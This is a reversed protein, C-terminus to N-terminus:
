QRRALLTGGRRGRAWAVREVNARCEGKGAEERQLEGVGERISRARTEAGCVRTCSTDGQRRALQPEIPKIKGM